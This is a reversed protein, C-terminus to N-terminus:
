RRGGRSVEVPGPARAPASVSAGAARKRPDQQQAAAMEHARKRTTYEYRLPQTVAIEREIERESADIAERGYKAVM